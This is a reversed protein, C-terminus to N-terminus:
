RKNRILEFIDVLFGEGIEENTIRYNDYIKQQLNGFDEGFDHLSSQDSIFCQYYNMDLIKNFFEVAIEEFEDIRDTPAFELPKDTGPRPLENNAKYLEFNNRLEDVAEKRTSGHGVLGHWGDFAAGLQVNSEGANENAWTRLPYHGFNWNSTFFSALYKFFRIM